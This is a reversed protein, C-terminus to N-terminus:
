DLKLMGQNCNKIIKQFDTYMLVVALDEMQEGNHGPAEEDFNEENPLSRIETYTHEIPEDPTLFAMDFYYDETTGYRKYLVFKENPLFVKLVYLIDLAEDQMTNLKCSVEFRFINMEPIEDKLGYFDYHIKYEILDNKNLKTLTEFEGTFYDLDNHLSSLKGMLLLNTEGGYTGYASIIILSTENLESTSINIREEQNSNVEKDNDDYHSNTDEKIKNFNEHSESIDKKKKGFLRKFIGM